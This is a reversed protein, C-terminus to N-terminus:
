STEKGETERPPTSSAGAAPELASAIYILALVGFIYAQVLAEIVHLMLLPVPVLFGAILLVLLAAMELSMVNGFLRIALALTRSLESVVHFPLLIPSPELYHRFHARLGRMRIGYWHTSAFVLAALAATASLDRTPAHLGPVLGTLNAFLVFSWLTAVFPLVRRTAPPPVVEAVGQEIATVIGEAITQRRSPQDTLRRGLAVALATLVLTVGLSTAVTDTIGLPGLRLVVAGGFGEGNM